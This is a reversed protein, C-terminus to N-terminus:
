IRNFKVADSFKAVSNVESLAGKTLLTSHVILVRRKHFDLWGKEAM